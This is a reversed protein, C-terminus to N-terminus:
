AYKAIQRHAALTTPVVVGNKLVRVTKNKIAVAKTQWDNNIVQIKM